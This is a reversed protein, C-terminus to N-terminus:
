DVIDDNKKILPVPNIENMQTENRKNICYCYIFIGAIILSAAGLVIFLVLLWTPFLPTVPPTPEPPVPKGGEVSFDSFRSVECKIMDTSNLTETGDTEIKSM